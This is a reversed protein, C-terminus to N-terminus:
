GLVTLLIKMEPFLRAVLAIVLFITTYVPVQCTLLMPLLGYTFGRDCM